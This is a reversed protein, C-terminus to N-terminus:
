KKRKTFDSDPRKFPEKFFKSIIENVYEPSESRAWHTQGPMICLQAKPINEYIEVTHSNRIIDEDGAIVLVKATIKSLENTPINPQDGLLGMRQKILEWNKTTDKELIKTKCINKRAKVANVAFRNVATSDPRLNAGLAVIKKIKTKRSIAMKLAVIGGDSSGFINLSDLKLHKALGEWDKTIQVYTLSDTKLESKGHGRSDAVIVRYRSKFYEIQYKMRGISSGNGHIILLPEGKGYEEYYIEAGNITVYKGIKENNGYPIDFDSKNEEQATALGCIISSFLLILLNVKRNMINRKVTALM